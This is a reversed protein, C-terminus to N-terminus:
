VDAEVYAAADLRAHTLNQPPNADPGKTRGELLPILENSAV